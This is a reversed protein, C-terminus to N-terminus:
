PDATSRALVALGHPERRFGLRAYLALADVNHEQTNVIAQSAGHRALWGLGDLM